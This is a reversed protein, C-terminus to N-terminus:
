KHGGRGQGALLRQLQGLGRSIYRHVTRESVNLTVAIQDFSCGELHRLRVAMACAMGGKSRAAMIRLAEQVLVGTSARGEAAARAQVTADPSPFMRSRFPTAEDAVHFEAENLPTEGYRKLHRLRRRHADIAANRAIRDVFAQLPGDGRYSALKVRCTERVEEILGERFEDRSVDGRLSRSYKNAIRAVGSAVEPWLRFFAAAQEEPSQADLYEALAESRPVGDEPARDLSLTGNGGFELVYGAM